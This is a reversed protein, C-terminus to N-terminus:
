HHEHQAHEHSQDGNKTQEVAQSGNLFEREEQEEKLEDPSKPNLEKMEREEDATLKPLHRILRVLKWSDQEDRSTGSGWSPMGTLRIGNQIIYFLEGDTLNQTSVQRMDPAPPYMHKGMEADGSGNNSHCAACHDAWHARADAMVEASDAVPNARERANSPMAMSRAQRAALTELVSPQARASFSDAGTKLFILGGVGVLAILAIAGALFWVLKQM